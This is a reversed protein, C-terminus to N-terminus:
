CLWSFCVQHAAIHGANIAGFADAADGVAFLHEYPVVLHGDDTTEESARSAEQIAGLSRTTPIAVQMSRKVRIMGKSPGDPVISDALLNQMMSTNPTQGTCLLQSDLILM